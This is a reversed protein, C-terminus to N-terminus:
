YELNKTKILNLLIENLSFNVKNKKGIEVLKGNISEIETKKGMIISQLMSSRNKKTDKIVHKIKRIMEENSLILGETNAIKTSEECIKEVTKELIENEILIGNEIEFFATLPNICSNVIAKIWIEKLIDKSVITRIHAKNFVDSIKKIRDTMKGNIEGIYTQGNGTHNIVGPSNFIAGNTTTGAIIQEKKIKDEIKELNDLGNQITLIVTKKGLIKLLDIIAIETDYSKVTLLILDPQFNITDLSEFAPIKVNISTKGIIKLGNKNIKDVHNKRGIITVYNNKSLLGAFLSGIAGSGMILIKM